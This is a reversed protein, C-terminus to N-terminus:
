NKIFLKKRGESINKKHDESKKKGKMSESIRKKHEDTMVQNARKQKIIAKTEESHKFTGKLHGRKSNNLAKRCNESIVGSEGGSTLNILRFGWAKFQAIWYMEAEKWRDRPVEELIEIIPKKNQALLKKIWNCKRQNRSDNKAEHIHSWFRYKISNAKGIYRVELTDPDSLTYIFTTKM